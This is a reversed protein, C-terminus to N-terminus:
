CALSLLTFIYFFASIFLGIVSGQIPVFFIWRLIAFLIAAMTM